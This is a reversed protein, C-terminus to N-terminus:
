RTSGGPVYEMVLYLFEEDQWARGAHATPLSAHGQGLAAIAQGVRNQM